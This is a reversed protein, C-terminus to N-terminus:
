QLFTCNDSEKKKTRKKVSRVKVMKKMKKDKKKDGHQSVSKWNGNTSSTVQDM